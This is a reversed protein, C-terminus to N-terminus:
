GRMRMGVGVRVALGLVLVGMKLVVVLMGLMLVLVSRILVTAHVYVLSLEGLVVGVVVGSSSM